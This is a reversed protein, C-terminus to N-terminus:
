YYIYKKIIKNYLIACVKVKVKSKMVSYKQQKNKAKLNQM